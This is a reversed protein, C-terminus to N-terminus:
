ILNGRTRMRSVRESSTHTKCQIDQDNLIFSRSRFFQFAIEFLEARVNHYPFFHACYTLRHAPQKNMLIFNIQDKHVDLQLITETKYYEFLHFDFFRYNKDGSIIFERKLGKLHVANVIQELGDRKHIERFTQLFEFREARLQLPILCLGFLHYIGQSCSRAPIGFGPEHYFRSVVDPRNRGVLDTEKEGVAPVHVQNGILQPFEDDIVSKLTQLVDEVAANKVAEIARM